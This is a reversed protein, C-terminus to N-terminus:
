SGVTQEEVEADEGEGFRLEADAGRMFRAAELVPQVAEWIAHADVGTMTMEGKKGSMDMEHGEYDGADAEELAEALQEELEYLPEMDTKPYKFRIILSQTAM